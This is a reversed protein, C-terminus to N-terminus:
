PTVDYDRPAPATVSEPDCDEEDSGDLCDDQGDCLSVPRICKGNNCTFELHWCPRHPCGLEDSGDGCDDSFDCVSHLPVCFHNKCKYHTIPCLYSQCDEEDEGTECDQHRDCRRVLAVCSNSCRFENALCGCQEVAEDQGEPCEPIGNCVAQESLCVSRQDSRECRFVPVTQNTACTIDEPICLPDTVNRFTRNQTFCCIIM